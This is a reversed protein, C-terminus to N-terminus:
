GNKSIIFAEQHMTETGDVIHDVIDYSLLFINGDEGVQSFINEAISNM